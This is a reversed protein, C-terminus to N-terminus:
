VADNKGWGWDHSASLWVFSFLLMRTYYKTRLLSVKDFSVKLWILKHTFSKLNM